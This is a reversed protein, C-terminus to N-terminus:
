CSERKHASGLGSRRRLNVSDESKVVFVGIEGSLQAVTQSGSEEIRRAPLVIKKRVDEERV